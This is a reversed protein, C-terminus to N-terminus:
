ENDEFKVDDCGQKFTSVNIIAPHHSVTKLSNIIEDQIKSIIFWESLISRVQSETVIIKKNNNYEM